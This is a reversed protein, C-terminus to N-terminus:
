RAKPATNVSHVSPLTTRGHPFSSSTLVIVTLNLLVMSPTRSQDRIGYIKNKFLHQQWCKFCVILQRLSAQHPSPPDLSGTSCGTCFNLFSAFQHMKLGEAFSVPAVARASTRDLLRYQRVVPSKDTICRLSHEM